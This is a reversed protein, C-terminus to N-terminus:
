FDAGAVAVLEGEVQSLHCNLRLLRYAGEGTQYRLRRQSRRIRAKIKVKGKM